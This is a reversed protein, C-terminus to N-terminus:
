IIEIDVVEIQGCNHYTDITCKGVIDVKVSKNIIESKLVNTAFKKIFKINNIYFVINLKGKLNSEDLNLDIDQFVILPANLGNGWEDEYSALEHIINEDFNNGDLIFDVLYEKSDVIEKDKYLYNLYEKLKNINEKKCQWGGAQEHGQSFEVLNSNLIDIRTDLSISDIGRFSGGVFGKKDVIDRYLLTPLKYKDSIKTAVLGTHNKDLTNGVDLIICRDNKDVRIKLELKKLASKVANDQRAKVNKCMKAVELCYDYDDSIFANVMKLKEEFTASRVCANIMPALTWGVTNINIKGELEYSKVEILAKIFLNNINKLGHYVFYRSEKEQLDMMDAINAFGVLDLFEDSVDDFLYEDLAKLFKYCVFAGCGNKNKVKNSLQNNIVIAYPSYGKDCIHHDIVLVDIGKYQLEEHQKFDNSSSDTLLVLNVDNEIQIDPSLGHEKGSHILIQINANPFLRKIRLYMITFSSHGDFDSDVVIAIKSENRLHELLLEVGEYIHDYENYNEIVSKDLNFLDKTISRNKLVTEIPQNIENTGFLKYRM